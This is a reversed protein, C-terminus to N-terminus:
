FAVTIMLTGDYSGDSYYMGGGQTSITGSIFFNDEGSMNTRLINPRVELDDLTFYASGPGILAVSAPLVVTYIADIPANTIAYEGRQPTGGVFVNSNTNVSGGPEISVRAVSAFSVIAIEGFSLPEVENIDQARAPPAAACLLLVLGLVGYKSKCSLSM